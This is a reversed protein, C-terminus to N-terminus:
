NALIKNLIKTDLNMLSVPRYNEKQHTGTRNPSSHLVSEMSHNQSHEKETELFLSLLTLILEKFTQYFEAIFRDPGPSKM